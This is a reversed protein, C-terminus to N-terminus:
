APLACSVKGAFRAPDWGEAAAGLVMPVTADAALAPVRQGLLRLTSHLTAIPRVAQAALSHRSKALKSGDPEVVVPVHLYRQAPWGLASGLGLHWSTAGFLDSGRVVDTVGSDHDDVTVCFHYTFVGDRRRLVLDRHRRPDFAVAGLSRDVVERMEQDHLDIRIAAREPNLQRVRCDGVCCREAEATDPERAAAAAALQQRSCDCAFLLGRSRLSELVEAYRLLRASQHVVPADPVM